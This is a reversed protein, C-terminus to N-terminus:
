FSHFVQHLVLNVFRLLWFMTRCSVLHFFLFFHPTILLFVVVGWGVRCGLIFLVGNRERKGGNRVSSNGGDRM